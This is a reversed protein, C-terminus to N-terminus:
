EFCFIYMKCIVGNEFIKTAQKSMNASENNAKPKPEKEAGPPAKWPLIVNWDNTKNKHKNIIIWENVRRTKLPAQQKFTFKM